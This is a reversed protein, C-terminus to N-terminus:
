GAGPQGLSAEHRPIAESSIAGLRLWHPLDFACNKPQHHKSRESGVARAVWGTLRPTAAIPPARLKIVGDALEM